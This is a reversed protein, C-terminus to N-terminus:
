TSYPVTAQPPPRAFHLIEKPSSDFTTSLVSTAPTRQQLSFLNSKEFFFTLCPQVTYPPDFKPDRLCHRSLLVKTSASVNHAAAPAAETCLVLHQALACLEPTTIQVPLHDPGAGRSSRLFSRCVMEGRRLIGCWERTLSITISFYFHHHHQYHTQGM